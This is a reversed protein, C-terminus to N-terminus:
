IYDEFHSTENSFSRSGLRNETKNQNEMGMRAGTSNPKKSGNSKCSQNGLFILTLICPLSLSFFRGQSNRFGLIMKM